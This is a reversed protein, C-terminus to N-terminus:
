AVMGHFAATPHLIGEPIRAAPQRRQVSRTLGTPDRPLRQRKGRMFHESLRPASQVLRMRVTGLLMMWVHVGPVKAELHAVTPYILTAGVDQRKDSDWSSINGVVLKSKRAPIRWWQM